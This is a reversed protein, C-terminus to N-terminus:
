VFPCVAMMVTLWSGSLRRAIRTWLTEREPGGIEDEAQALPNDPLGDAGIGAGQRNFQQQDDPRDGEVAGKHSDPDNAEIMPSTPTPNM